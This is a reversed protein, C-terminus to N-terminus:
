YDDETGPQTDVAVPRGASRDWEGFRDQYAQSLTATVREAFVPIGPDLADMFGYALMLAHGLMIARNVVVFPWITPHNWADPVGTVSEYTKAYRERDTSNMERLRPHHGAAFMSELQFTREAELSNDSMAQLIRAFMEAPNMPTSFMHFLRMNREQYEQAGIKICQFILDDKDAFRTYIVAPNVHARRAIRAVTARDVGARNVVHVVARHLRFEVDDPDQPEPQFVPHNAIPLTEPPLSSRAMGTMEDALDFLVRLVPTWDNVVANSIRGHLIIGALVGFMVPMMPNEAAAKGLVAMFSPEVDDRLAENRRAVVLLSIAASLRAPDHQVIGRLEELGAQRDRRCEPDVMLTLIRAVTPECLTHWVDVLLEDSNEYRAYLAGTSLGAQQAISTFGVRDPGRKLIEDLACRLLRQRTQEGKILRREGAPVM